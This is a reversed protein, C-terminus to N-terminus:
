MGSVKAQYLKMLHAVCASEDGIPWARGYADWVARDNEQHARRLDHPMVTDDYLDAYSDNPYKARADLIGQATREIKAKQDPTCDPWIFNNYVIDKSYRYRMELRGAVTRMWAMHANSTIIGFSLLSPVPLIFVLDSALDISEMFGIPIYRRNESSVKPILLYHDDKPINTTQFMTPYESLKVTSSRSSNARFTRVANVREMVLPLNRLERPSLAALFLCYRPTKNIFEASGYWKHFFKESEPEKLVFDDMEEKTFLYNGDDIPMNGIGIEPVECIPKSRSEVLVDPADVLYPNVNDTDFVQVDDFIRKQKALGNMSFGIIVCHVAAKSKAENSWKFTRWAFDIKIGSELLPKWLIAVQDGQSISNTSVLSARIKPYRAMLDAAKKFWCAVFDLNGANKAAGFVSQLDEKQEPSMVRAGLFPPNGIIYDLKEAPCVEDWDLRLANGRVINANERIPFDIINVGFHDSLDRDMLHKLLLISLQAVQCPFDEIEIGYFQGPKVKVLTDVLAMQHSEHLLKLVEFELKRLEQYTVILFNGSGCAPDLFHLSALKDQFARLERTTSKCREFEDYLADLFLPRIVKLINEQSTYHAGLARRAQQDMVGQFMAGFISPSILTWDFERSVEVLADRMNGDFSAPPLPDRFISGNIYRFRKLEDPMTKMRGSEPTNLVWFLESLRGSLDSGDARSALIYHQFSDKEFIGTDDAFLCFLLRVLFVELAHGSYGNEKLADHIRAMKYSAATNVEIETAEEAQAGYGALQSFIRTHGKLQRVRFPKYPHDKKLNYVQVQDFDCVMVLAPVEEPKLARVYSMAQAYATALSKGRSKMEILIRGPLLYDVYAISGDLLRLQYEHLGELPEVGFVQMFDKEFTQGFQREDGSCDRWRAAFAAARTDIELWSLM